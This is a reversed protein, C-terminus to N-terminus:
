RARSREPTEHEETFRAGAEAFTRARSTNTDPPPQRGLAPDEKLRRHEDVLNKLAGPGLRPKTRLMALGARVEDDTIEPDDLLEDIAEGLQRQVPRPPSPNLADVHERLLANGLM